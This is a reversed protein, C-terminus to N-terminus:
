SGARRASTLNRVTIGIETLGDAVAVAADEFDPASFVPVVGNSFGLPELPIGFLGRDLEGNGNIDQYAVAAYTGPALDSFTVVSAGEDSVAVEAQADERELFAEASAYLNVRVTGVRAQTGDVTIEIQGSPAEPAPLQEAVESAFAPLALPTALV